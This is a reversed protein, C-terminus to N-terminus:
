RLEPDSKHSIVGGRYEVEEADVGWVRAAREM